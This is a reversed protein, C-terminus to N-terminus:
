QGSGHEVGGVFAGAWVEFHLVAAVVAAREAHNGEHAPLAPRQLHLADKALGSADIVSVKHAEFLSAIEILTM